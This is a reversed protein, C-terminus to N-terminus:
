DFHKLKQENAFALLRDDVIHSGCSDVMVIYHYGQSPFLHSKLFDRGPPFLENHLRKFWEFFFEKKM